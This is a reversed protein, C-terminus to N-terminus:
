SKPAKSRNGDVGAVSGGLHYEGCRYGTEEVAAMLEHAAVRHADYIVSAQGSPFDVEAERVGTVAELGRVVAEECAHSHM